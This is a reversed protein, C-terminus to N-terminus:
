KRAPIIYTLYIYVRVYIVNSKPNTGYKLVSYGLDLLQLFLRYLVRIKKGVFTVLDTM